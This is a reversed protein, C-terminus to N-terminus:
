MLKQLDLVRQLQSQLLHQERQYLQNLLVLTLLFSAQFAAVPVFAAVCWSRFSVRVLVTSHQLADDPVFDAFCCCTCLSHPSRWQSAQGGLWSIKDDM